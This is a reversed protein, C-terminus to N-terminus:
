EGSSFSDSIPATLISMWKYDRIVDHRFQYNGTHIYKIQKCNNDNYSINHENGFIAVFIEGPSPFYYVDLFFVASALWIRMHSLNIVRQYIKEFCKRLCHLQHLTIRACVM